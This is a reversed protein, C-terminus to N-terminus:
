FKKKPSGSGTQIASSETFLCSRRRQCEPILSWMTVGLAILAVCRGSCRHTINPMWQTRAKLTLCGANWLLALHHANLRWWEMMVWWAMLLPELLKLTPTLYLGWRRWWRDRIRRTLLGRLLNKSLVGNCQQTPILSAEPRPSESWCWSLIYNTRSASYGTKTKALVDALRSATVKGCRASQWAETGQEESM